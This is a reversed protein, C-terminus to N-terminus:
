SQSSTGGDIGVLKPREGVQSKSFNAFFLDFDSANHTQPTYEVIPLVDAHTLMSSAFRNTGVGITNKGTAFPTYVFDYLVRLCALTITEDCHELDKFINQRCTTLVIFPIGM